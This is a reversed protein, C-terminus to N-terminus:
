AMFPVCHPFYFNRKKASACRMANWHDATLTIYARGDVRTIFTQSAGNLESRGLHDDLDISRWVKTRLTQAFGDGADIRDNVRMRM